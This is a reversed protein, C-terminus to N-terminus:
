KKNEETDWAGQDALTFGLGQNWAAWLLLIFSNGVSVILSYTCFPVCRKLQHPQRYNLAEEQKNRSDALTFVKRSPHLLFSCSHVSCFNCRVQIWPLCWNLSRFYNLVIDTERDKWVEFFFILLTKVKNSFQLTISGQIEQKYSFLTETM